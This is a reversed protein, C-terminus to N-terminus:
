SLSNISYRRFCAPKCRSYRESLANSMLNCTEILILKSVIKVALSHGVVLCIGLVMERDFDRILIDRLNIGARRVDEDLEHGM